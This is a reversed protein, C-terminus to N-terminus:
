RSNKRKKRNMACCGATFGGSIYLLAILLVMGYEGTKPSSVGDSGTSGGNASGDTSGSDAAEITFTTDATGNQSVISLTHTGVSLTDLYAAGLVVVTSGAYVSYLKSDLENGDVLVRLFEDYEVNSRFRAGDGSGCRWHQEAGEIIEPNYSIAELESIREILRDLKEIADEGLLKKENDTLKDLSGKAGDVSAKDALKAEDPAPLGDIESRVMDANAIADLAGIVDDLRSELNSKEQETYNDGYSGLAEELKEKAAELADKDEAKVSDATIGGASIIESNEGADKAADIRNLLATSATIIAELATRETETLNETGLLAEADAIVAEIGDRDSSKVTEPSYTGARETIDDLKALTDTIRQLLARCRESASVIQTWEDQTSESEDYLEGLDLISRQVAEITERDDSRVNEATIESIPETISSIPKMYVTYETENGAKDTARIVYTAERDGALIFPTEVAEGNLTVSDLNEDDAAARKTLYYTEGNEVGVLEPATTDFIAGDSGIYAVNGANDEICVYIIFREMDVADIVINSKETWDSVAAVEADTLISDSRYYQVSRIGSADDAASLEVNVESRFFLGFTIKNLVTQFASRGELTVTGTPATKDIRFRETVKASIVGSERNRLYFTLSGDDTEESVCLAQRWEGDATDTLSLEWGQAATVTFDTNLWGEASRTYESGNSVYEVIDATIGSPQTLVYNAADAGGLGFETFSIAINRGVRIETFSPVGCILRVDDGEVTGTPTPTGDLEAAATGDYQKDKVALGAIGVSRATIDATVAAPQATLNYNAADAGDLAFGGFGVRKGTGVNKDSYAAAGVSISVDDGGVTNELRGISSIRADATGDYVKTGDVATGVITVDRSTIDATVAAPQAALTYNAADAGDLAFGTFTVTKDTGANRDSYAATGVSISIDDGDVTNELTGASSIRADATGDYVKSGEVAAGVITVSRATIDATVAAPQAALVYNAADAGDLAFGTFTVTKGTGANRDSYAAVGVSISIDDGDVTNTLEGVSSIRADATGDYVKSGEVAAGVITVSRATIDATVAAPQATLNYNAADAGGLAFGSFNVTKGDGANRDIYAAAGVSITLDDGDIMGDVTGADTIRADTTGDYTRYEEVATGVITVDRATIDATVAAPQAALMYNAADAGDLAFGTFTVTKGTGVNKDSYAAVGVSISIDDGDVTNTLTGASSIRADATGDYVKSGEVAAGVITVSRATIDATVDAPQAALVYNAADAGDLAFGSFKVTKGAGANRDSYAAAGVSISIDDGDVTNELEGVSSIRVDATGDYVKSGEVAAGVITVSRATIDATVAAPQATLNYNAADAGALAFGSFKVTKGDGANRDTYAAAGVSITLDDGDIMGDVTGVDSIRADTTGDYVKTGDVATGVITVARRTIEYDREAVAPYNTETEAVSVRITYRGADRPATATYASDDAGAPKFEVTVAGSSNTSFDPTAIPQGDYMKEFSNPLFSVTTGAKGVSLKVATMAPADGEAYSEGMPAYVVRVTYEGAALAALYANKLTIVGDATVTYSSDNILSSGNYLAAVTNGNLKVSFSVDESGTRVFTVSETIAEADTYVVVGDSNIVAANGSADTVRLYVYAKRNPEIDFSAEGDAFSLETWDGVVATEDSFATESLLYEAKVVGSGADEATVTVTQTKKFFLGFTVTNMFSNFRNTGINIEATPPTIDAVGEVTIVLDERVARVTYLDDSTGVLRSDPERGNVLVKYNETMSYGSGLEVTFSYSYGYRVTNEGADPVVTYGIGTPLTVTYIKYVAVSFSVTNGAIDTAVIKHVQNDPDITYKGDELTIETGDVWVTFDNADTVTFETPGYYSGDPEVGSFAPAENDTEEVYGCGCLKEHTDTRWVCTHTHGVVRVNGAISVRGDIVIGSNIEELAKGDALLDILRGAATLNTFEGGKIIFVAGDRVNVDAYVGGSLTVNSGTEATISGTFTNGEYVKLTGGTKVLLERYKGDGGMFKVSGGNNVTVKGSISSANVTIDSGSVNMAGNLTCYNVITNSGRTNLAQAFTCKYFGGNIGNDNVTGKIDLTSATLVATKAVTVTGNITGEFINLSATKAVGLGCITHGNMGITIDGASVTVKGSVDTFMWLICGKNEDTQAAALADAFAVYGTTKDDKVVAAALDCKCQTCKYGYDESYGSHECVAMTITFTDSYLVYGNYELKIRYQGSDATTFEWLNIADEFIRTPKVTNTYVVTGDIREGTIAIDGKSPYGGSYEVAFAAWKEYNPTTLYYVKNRPQSHFILPASVVTVGKIWYTTGRGSIYQSEVDKESAYEGSSLMFACGDALYTLPSVSDSGEKSAIQKFKGGKITLSDAGSAIVNALGTYDGREITMHGGSRVELAAGVSEVKGGGVSDTVTLDCGEYVTLANFNEDWSGITLTKGALDLTYTGGNLEIYDTGNVMSGATERGLLLDQLLKVTSGDNQEAYRVADEFTRFLKTVGGAEVSLYYIMGCEPCIGDSGIFLHECPVVTVDKLEKVKAEEYSLGDFRCGEGLLDACTLDDLDVIKLEGYHGGCLATEGTYPYNVDLKAVTLSDVSGSNVTLSGSQQELEQVTCDGDLTLTGGFVLLPVKVAGPGVITVDCGIHLLAKDYNPALIPPNVIAHGNLYYIWKGAGLTTDYDAKEADGYLKLTMTESLLPDLVAETAIKYSDGYAYKKENKNNIYKILVTARYGCYDCVGTDDDFSHDKHVYVEFTAANGAKDYAEFTIWREVRDAESAAITYSNGWVESRVGDITMYAVDFNEDVFKFRTTGCTEARQGDTYRETKDSAYSYVEVVPATKDITFGDTSAYAINGAYDTLRVYIVYNQESSLAGGDGEVFDDRSDLAAETLATDSILYEVKVSHKSADFGPQTYGDDTANISFTIDESYFLGFSIVNLVSQWWSREKIKIEGTPATIDALYEGYESHCISCIAKEFYSAERDNIGSDHPCAYDCESCVGDVYIHTHPQVSCSDTFGFNFLKAEGVDNMEWLSDDTIDIYKGDSDFLMNGDAWFGSVTGYEKEEGVYGYTIGYRFESSALEASLEGNLRVMMVTGVFVSDSMELSGNMVYVASGRLKTNSGATFEVGELTVKAGSEARVANAGTQTFASGNDDFKNEIKGNIIKVDAARSVRIISHAASGELMRGGLDLTFSGESAELLYEGSSGIDLDCLLRLTSGVNVVAAAWADAFAEYSVSTGDAKTLAATYIQRGCVDECRGDAGISSHRCPMGCEQCQTEGDINVIFWHHHEAIYYTKDLSTKGEIYEPSEWEKNFFFYDDALLDEVFGGDKREIKDFQGGSLKTSVTKNVSLTGIEIRNRYAADEIVLTSDIDQYGIVVVGIKGYGKLTLTEGHAIFSVMNVSRGNVEITCSSTPAIVGIDQLLMVTNGDAFDDNQLEEVYRVVGNKDTIKGAYLKGCYNCYGKTDNVKGHDCVVVELEAISTLTSVTLGYSVLQSSDKSLIGKNDKFAYGAELMDTIVVTDGGSFSVYKFYGGSLKINKLSETDTYPLSLKGIEGGRVTVTSEADTVRVTGVGEFDKELTVDGGAAEVTLRDDLKGNAVTLASNPEVVIRGSGSMTHGNLDLLINNSNGFYLTNDGLDYKYNLLTVTVQAKMNHLVSGVADILSTYFSTGGEPYTVKAELQIGCDKCEGTANDVSDHPCPAGCGTCKGDSYSHKHNAIIKVNELTKVDANVIGGDVGYFACGDGLLSALPPNKYESSGVEPDSSIKTFTGGTLRIDGFSIAMQLDAFTGDTINLTGGGINMNIKESYEGGNVTLTGGNIYFWRIAGGSVTASVEEGEGDNLHFYEAAGGTINVTAAYSEVRLDGVSGSALTLAGANVSLYEIEGGGVSDTVTLTGPTGKVMEDAEEDYGYSGVDVSNISKGNLDLTFEGTVFPFKDLDTEYPVDVDSLLKLTGGNRSAYGVADAYVLFATTAGNVTVEAEGGAAFASLPVMSFAMIVTLFLSTIRTRLSISKGM